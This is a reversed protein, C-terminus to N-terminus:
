QEMGLPKLFLIMLGDIVHVFILPILIGVPNSDYLLGILLAILLLKFYRWIFYFLKSSNIRIDEYKRRFTSDSM